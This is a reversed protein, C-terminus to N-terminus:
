DSNRPTLPPDCALCPIYNARGLVFHSPYAIKKCNMYKWLVKNTTSRRIFIYVAKFTYHCKFSTLNSWIEGSGITYFSANFPLADGYRFWFCLSFVVWNWTRKSYSGLCTVQVFPPRVKIGLPCSFLLFCAPASSHWAWTLSPSALSARILFFNLDCEM